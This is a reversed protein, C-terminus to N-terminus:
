TYVSRKEECHARVRDVWNGYWWWDNDKLAVGFQKKPDKTGLSRWLNSHDNMTFRPFGEARMLSVIQTPKYKPKEAHKLLVRTIRDHDETGARVYEIVEDAKGRSNASIEVLAVRYAYRPDLIMEDTLTGEFAAHMALINPPLDMDKLLLDRQEREIGSFQIAISLERDLGLRDGALLKIARNFNLCCAQLKASIAGDIRRTMQHEIEHRIEILFRLNVKTQLDLPYAPCDLCADLEWHKEAGHKTLRPSGDEKKYRYDVGKGRYHWHLLYTWGIVSVVIFVESKFLSTPNNFCQVAQIMAERSKVLLEDDSVHLGTEPHIGPWDRKFQAM